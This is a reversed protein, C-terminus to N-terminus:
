SLQKVNETLQANEEGLADRLDMLQETKETFATYTELRDARFKAFNILASLIKRTQSYEPFM